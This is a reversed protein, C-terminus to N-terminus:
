ESRFWQRPIANQDKADEDEPPSSLIRSIGAQTEHSVVHQDARSSMLMIWQATSAMLSGVVAFTLVWNQSRQRDVEPDQPGKEPKGDKGLLLVETGDPGRIIGTKDENPDISSEGVKVEYTGPGIEQKTLRM